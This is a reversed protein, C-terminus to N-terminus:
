SITKRPNLSLAMFCIGRMIAMSCSILLTQCHIPLPMHVDSLYSYCTRSMARFALICEIRNSWQFNVIVCDYLSVDESDFGFCLLSVPKHTLRLIIWNTKKYFPSSCMLLWQEPAAGATIVWDETRTEYVWFFKALVPTTKCLLADLPPYLLSSAVLSTVLTMKHGTDRATM